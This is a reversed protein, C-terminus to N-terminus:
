IMKQLREIRQDIPPHTAFLMILGKKSPAAIKLSQFSANEHRIDKIEQMVRLSQLASIMHEKGALHAGGADARYERFRSYTAVVMSGLIMFVVEFLYVFMMYSFYSGSSGSNKNSRGLGSVAYAIVRALFMVFANVVGQLLTMTVMDGNAIHSMEHGLIAEIENEKMRNLLGTSVAILSRRKTPGTAFANVENSQYVGVEPINSLHAKQTLREVMRLLTQYDPDTTNPDIVRVGMVSKAIFRSLSLSVLAGIMGWLFCFILLSNYDLGYHTLYPQINFLHLIFSIMLIVLFNISLFLFIRKIGAM